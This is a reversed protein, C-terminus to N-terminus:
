FSMPLRNRIVSYDGLTEAIMTAVKRVDTVFPRNPVYASLTGDMQAIGVDMFFKKALATTVSFEAPVGWVNGNAVVAMVGLDDFQEQTMNRNLKFPSAM